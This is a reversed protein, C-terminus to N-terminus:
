RQNTFGYVSPTYYPNAPIFIMWGLIAVALGTGMLWLWMSLESKSATFRRSFITRALVGGVIVVAFVALALTTRQAGVPIVSRGLITGGGVIMNGLHTIDASLGRTERPTHLGVWLGGALVVLLDVAWRARAVRFGARSTYLLGALAILPLTIEYTLISLLYLFAACAHLRWSHNALGVVALWLGVCAFILSLTLLNAATWFRVSDFWPYVISLGAILWAHVRALGLTRFLGYLVMALLVALVVTFALQYAFHTGLVSYIVSMYLILVPRFAFLGDFYSIVQGFGPGGPPYRAGAANPWDDLYFGGHRVHPAYVLVGLIMLALSALAFECM